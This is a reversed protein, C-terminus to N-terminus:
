FLIKAICPSLELPVKSELVLDNISYVVCPTVDQCIFWHRDTDSFNTLNLKNFVEELWDAIQEISNLCPGDSNGHGPLDLSLVNFNKSSFFQDTLSWIIHSLGSGHLFVITNKSKEIGQGAESFYVNAEDKKLNSCWNQRLRSQSSGKLYFIDFIRGM